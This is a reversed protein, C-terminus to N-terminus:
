IFIGPLQVIKLWTMLVIEISSLIVHPLRNFLPFASNNNAVMVHPSARLLRHCLPLHIVIGWSIFLTDGRQSM